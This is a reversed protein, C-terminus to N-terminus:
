EIVSHAPPNEDIVPGAIKDWFKWAYFIPKCRINLAHGSRPNCRFKGERIVFNALSATKTSRISRADIVKAM